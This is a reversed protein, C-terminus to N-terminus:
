QGPTRLTESGRRREKRRTEHCEDVRQQQRAVADKAREVDRHALRNRDVATKHEREAYGLDEVLTQRETEILDIEDAVGQLQKRAQELAQDYQELSDRIQRLGTEHETVALDTMGINNDLRTREDATTASNREAQLKGRETRLEALGNTFEDHRRRNPENAREMEEISSQLADRTQAHWQSQSEAAAIQERIDSVKVYAEDELDLVEAHRDYEADVAKQLEALHEEEATCDRPM